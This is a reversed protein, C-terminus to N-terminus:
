SPITHIKGCNKTFAISTTYYYREFIILVVSQLIPTKNIRTIGHLLNETSLASQSTCKTDIASM